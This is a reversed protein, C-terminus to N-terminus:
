RWEGGLPLFFFAKGTGKKGQQTSGEFCSPIMEVFEADEENTRSDIRRRGGRMWLFRKAGKGKECEFALFHIFETKESGRFHAFHCDFDLPHSASRDPYPRRERENSGDSAGM